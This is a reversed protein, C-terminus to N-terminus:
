IKRKGLKNAVVALIMLQTIHYLMVPLLYLSASISNGFIITVMASGHVLSKKSGCFMATIRDAVSLKLKNAVFYIIGMLSWFLCFVTAILFFLHLWSINAFMNALISTSFSAYVILVIITKDFISIKSSHKKAIAGWKNNLLLGLSLPLLIQITLKLFVDGLSMGSSQNIFLGIWLPTVFVGIMGSISANFIASPVNGKALSVMVISSSVSSPLAALFFLGIWFSDGILHSLFPKLMLLILPFILFTSIQILVHLKYNKLGSAVEKFSLKLGYFFFILGIGVESVEKLYFMEAGKPFIFAIIIAIILSVIFKDIKMNNFYFSRLM